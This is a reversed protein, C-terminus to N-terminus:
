RHVTIGDVSDLRGTFGKKVDGEPLANVAEEAAEKKATVENNLRTLEDADAQSVVDKAKVETM